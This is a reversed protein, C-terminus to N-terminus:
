QPHPVPALTLAPTHRGADALGPLRLERLLKRQMAQAFDDYDRATQVFADAGRIVHAEYYDQLTQVNTLDKTTNARGMPGIVLGNVTIEGLEAHALDRPHRGLNGPGDGSIDLVHRWCPQGALARAGFSIAAGLATSGERSPAPRVSRLRATAMELDAAGTIDTWPLIVRQDHQGSWEYVMLRVPADPLLLFAARVAPDALAAAVGDVQLRYERADVSGSVDLGLALAQRCDAQAAGAWCLLGALALAVRRM